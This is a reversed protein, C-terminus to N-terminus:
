SVSSVYAQLMRKETCHWRIAQIFLAWGQPARRRHPAYHWLTRLLRRHPVWHHCPGWCHGRCAFPARRRHSARTWAPSARPVPPRHRRLGDWSGRALDARTPSAHALPCGALLPPAPSSLGDRVLPPACHLALLIRPYTSSGHGSPLWPISTWLM